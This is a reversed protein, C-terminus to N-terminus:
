EKIIRFTTNRLCPSLQGSKAEIQLRFYIYAPKPIPTQSIQGATLPKWGAAKDYSYEVTLQGDNEDAEYDLRWSRIKKLKIRRTVACGSLSSTLPSAVPGLGEPEDGGIAQLVIKDLRAGGCFAHPSPFVYRHRGRNLSYIRGRTWRWQKALESNSDIVRAPRGDDMYEGHNYNAKLPFYALFRVQYKGSRIVEFDFQMMKVHEVYHGGSATPADLITQDSNKFELLTADEAEFVIPQGPAQRFERRLRILNGTKVLHENEQFRLPVDHWKKQLAGLVTTACGVLGIVILARLIVPKM